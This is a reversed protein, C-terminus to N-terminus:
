LWERSQQRLVSLIMSKETSHFELIESISIGCRALYISFCGIFIKCCLGGVLRTEVHVFVLICIINRVTVIFQIVVYFSCLIVTGGISSFQLGTQMLQIMVFCARENM